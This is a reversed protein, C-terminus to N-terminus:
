VLGGTWYLIRHCEECTVMKDDKISEISKDAVKTGCEECTQQKTVKSLGIGGHQKRIADYTAILTPPLGKATDPRQATLEKFRTELQNKVAVAKKRWDDFASQKEGLEAQGKKLKTEAAAVEDWVTLLRDENAEKQKKLSAVQHEYADVEKPNTVTGGFLLKDISKVKDDIQQNNLELDKQEGHAKHYAAELAKVQATFAEVESQFKKGAELAAAKKRVELIGVDILHLQYLKMLDASAM